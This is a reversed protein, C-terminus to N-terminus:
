KKDMRHIRGILFIGVIRNRKWQLINSEIILSAIFDWSKTMIIKMENWWPFKVGGQYPISLSNWDNNWLDNWNWEMSPYYVLQHQIWIFNWSKIMIRLQMGNSVNSGNFYLVESYILSLLAAIFLLKDAITFKKFM